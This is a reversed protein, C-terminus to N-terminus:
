KRLEVFCGPELQLDSSDSDEYTEETGANLFAIRDLSDPRKGRDKITPIKEVLRQTDGGTATHSVTIYHFLFLFEGPTPTHFWGSPPDVKKAIMSEIQSSFVDHQKKSPGPRPPLKNIAPGHPPLRKSKSKSESKPKSDKSFCRTLSSSYHPIRTRYTISSVTLSRCSRTLPGYMRSPRRSSSPPKSPISFLQRRFCNVRIM